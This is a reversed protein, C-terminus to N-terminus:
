RREISGRGRFLTSGCRNGYLGIPTPQIARMPKDSFDAPNPAKDSAFRLDALRRGESLRAERVVNRAAATASDSAVRALDLVGVRGDKGGGPGLM